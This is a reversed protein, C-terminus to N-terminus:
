FWLDWDLVMEDLVEFNVELVKLSYHQERTAKMWERVKTAEVFLRKVFKFAYKCVCIREAFTRLGEDKEM